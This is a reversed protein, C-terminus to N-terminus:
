SAAEGQEGAAPPASQDLEAAALVPLRQACELCLLLEARGAETSLDEDPGLAAAVMPSGVLQELGHARQIAGLDAVQTAVTVRYFTIAGKALLGGGCGACPKIESRKM